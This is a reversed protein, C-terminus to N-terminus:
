AVEKRPNNSLRWKYLGVKGRKILGTMNKDRWIPEIMLPSEVGNWIRAAQIRALMNANTGPKLCAGPSKIVRMTRIMTTLPFRVRETCIPINASNTDM